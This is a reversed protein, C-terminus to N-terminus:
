EEGLGDVIISNRLNGKNDRKYPQHIPAPSDEGKKRGEAQAKLKRHYDKGKRRYVKTKSYEGDSQYQKM